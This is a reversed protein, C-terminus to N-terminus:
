RHMAEIDEAVKDHIAKQHQAEDGRIRKGGHEELFAVCDEHRRSAALETPSDGSRDLANVDAGMSVLLQITRLDGASAAAHLATRWESHDTASVSIGHSLMAQVTRFDSNYAAYVLLDGVRPSAVTQRIFLRQWIGAPVSLLGFLLLAVAFGAFTTTDPKRRKVLDIVIMVLAVATWLVLLIPALFLIAGAGHALSFGVMQPGRRWTWVTQEWILRGALIATGLLPLVGIFLLWWRVRIPATTHGIQETNMAFHIQM